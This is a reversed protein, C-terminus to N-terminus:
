LLNSQKVFVNHFNFKIYRFVRNNQTVINILDKSNLKELFKFFINITYNRKFYLDISNLTNFHIITIQILIIRIFPLSIARFRFLDFFDIVLHWIKHNQGGSFCSIKTAYDSLIDIQLNLSTKM